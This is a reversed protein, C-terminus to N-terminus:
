YPADSGWVIRVQASFSDNEIVMYLIDRCERYILKIYGTIMYFYSNDATIEAIVWAGKGQIVHLSGSPSNSNNNVRMFHSVNTVRPM